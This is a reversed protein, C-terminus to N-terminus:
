FLGPIGGTFKGMKEETIQDVQKMAENVAIVIMDQLVEIDDLEFEDDLTIKVELIEKKGNVKVNVFGNVSSFEMADIANKEKMMENQLKQAQKMMAQMNM